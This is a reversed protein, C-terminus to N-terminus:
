KIKYVHMLKDNYVEKYSFNYYNFISNNIPKTPFNTSYIVNKMSESLIVYNINLSPLSQYEYFIANHLKESSDAFKIDKKGLYSFLASTRLDSAITGNLNLAIINEASQVEEQNYYRRMTFPDNYIILQSIILLLITSFIIFIRFRRKESWYVGFLIFMLPFSYDLIRPYYGFSALVIFVFVLGILWGRIFIYEKSLKIKFLFPLFALFYIHTLAFQAIYNNITIISSYYNKAGLNLLFDFFPFKSFILIVSFLLAFLSFYESQLVKKDKTLYVLIIIFMTGILMYFIKLISIEKFLKSLLSIQSPDFILIWLVHFLLLGLLSFILKKDPKFSYFFSILLGLLIFIFASAGTHYSTLTLLSFVIFILLYANKNDSKLYKILFLFSAWMFIYCLGSTGITRTYQLLNESSVAFLSFALFGGLNKGSIEKGLFFLIISGFIFVLYINGFLPNLLNQILITTPYRTAKDSFDKIPGQNLITLNYQSTFAEYPSYPLFKHLPIYARLYYGILFLFFIIFVWIIINNKKM